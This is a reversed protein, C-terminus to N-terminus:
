GRPTITLEECGTLIEIFCYLVLVTKTSYRYNTSQDYSKTDVLSVLSTHGRSVTSVSEFLVFSLHREKTPENPKDHWYLLNKDQRPKERRGLIFYKKRTTCKKLEKTGM